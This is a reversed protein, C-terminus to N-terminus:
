ELVNDREVHILINTKREIVRLGVVVEHMLVEELVDINWRLIDINEVSVGHIQNRLAVVIFFSNFAKSANLEEKTTNSWVPVNCEIFGTRRLIRSRVVYDLM